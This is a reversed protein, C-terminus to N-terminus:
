GGTKWEDPIIESPLLRKYEGTYSVLHDVTNSGLWNNPTDKFLLPMVSFIGPTNLFDDEGKQPYLVHNAQDVRTNLIRNLIFEAGAPTYIRAFNDFVHIGHSVLSGVVVPKAPHTLHPQIHGTMLCLFKYGHAKSLKDLYTVMNKWWQYKPYFDVEPTLLVGDHIFMQTENKKILDRLFRCINWLHCIKGLTGTEYRTVDHLEPFGDEAIADLLDLPNTIGMEVADKAEWIHTESVPVHLMRAQAIAILRRDIRKRLNLITWGNLQM